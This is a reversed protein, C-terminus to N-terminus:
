RRMPSIVHYRTWRMRQWRVTLVAAKFAEVAVMTWWLGAVGMDLRGVLLWALPLGILWTGALSYAVPMFVDGVAKLANFIVITFVNFPQLLVNILLVRRAEALVEPDDSFIGILLGSFVYMMLALGTVALTTGAATRAARRRAARNEEDGRDYGVLVENGQSIVYAIVTLLATATLVYARANVAYVGLGAIFSLMILQYANYAINDGVSPFSLKFIRGVLEGARRRGIRLSWAFKLRWRLVVVLLAVGSVRVLLTSMAAGWVGLEPMGLRGYILAYELLLYFVNALIGLVLIEVTHGYARLVASAAVVFGNFIMAVSIVYIYILADDVVEAPTNVWGVLTPGALAIAGAVIVSFATNAAIGIVAIQEAQRTNGRGLQQAVLVVTGVSFLLTLDYAVGLIQNAVSVAANLDESYNSILVSDAFSTAISLISFIFLPWTLQFLNKREFAAM